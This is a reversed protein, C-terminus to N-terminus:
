WQYTGHHYITDDVPFDDSPGTVGALVQNTVGSAYDKAADAVQPGFFYAGTLGGATLVPHKSAASALGQGGAAVGKGALEVGKGIGKGVMGLAGDIVGAIKSLVRANLRDAFATRTQDMTMAIAIGAQAEKEMVQFARYIENRPNAVKEVVIKDILEADPRLRIYQNQHLYDGVMTCAAKVWEDPSEAGATKIVQVIDIFDGHQLADRSHELLKAAAIKHNEKHGNLRYNADDFWERTERHMEMQVQDPTMVSHLYDDASATKENQPLYKDAWEQPITAQKSYQASAGKFLEKADKAYGTAPSEVPVSGTSYVKSIVAETNAPRFGATKDHGKFLADWAAHNAKECVRAIQEKTVQANAEKLVGCVADTLEMNRMLHRRAAKEGYMELTGPSLNEAIDM